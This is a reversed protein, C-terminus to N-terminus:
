GSSVDPIGEAAKAAKKRQYAERKKALIEEKKQHYRKKSQERHKEPNEKHMQSLRALNEKDRDLKAQAIIAPLDEKLKRLEELEARTVTVLEETDAM